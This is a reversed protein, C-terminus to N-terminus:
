VRHVPQFLTVMLSRSRTLGHPARVISRKKQMPKRVTPPRASSQTLCVRQARHIDSEMIPLSTLTGRAIDFPFTKLALNSV